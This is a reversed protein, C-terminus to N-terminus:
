KMEVVVDMSKGTPALQCGVLLLADDRRSLRRGAGAVLCDGADTGINLGDQWSHVATGLLSSATL